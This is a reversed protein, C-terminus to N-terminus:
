SFIKHQAMLSSVKQM